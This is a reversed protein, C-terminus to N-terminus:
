RACRACTPQPTVPGVPRGTQQIARRRRHDDGVASILAPDLRDSRQPPQPHGGGLDGLAEPHREGRDRPDQRPDSQALETSEAQLGNLAILAGPGPLQDMDVDLLQAADLTPRALADAAARV